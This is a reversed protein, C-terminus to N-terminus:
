GGRQQREYADRLRMLDELTYEGNPGSGGQKLDDLEGGMDQGAGGGGPPGGGRRGGGEGGGPQGGGRRGLGPGGAEGGGRRRPGPPPPAAGESAALEMLMRLQEAAEPPLGELDSPDIGGSGALGELAGPGGVQAMLSMMLPVLELMAEPDLGVLRQLDVARPDFEGLPLRQQLETIMEETMGADEVLDITARQGRLMVLQRMVDADDIDEPRETDRQYLVQVTVVHLDTRENEIPRLGVRWFYGPYADGFANEIEGEVDIEDLRQQMNPDLEIEALLRDALLSARLQEESFATMNLGNVLQSALLGMAATLIAFAIVVELLLAAHHRRSQRTAIM